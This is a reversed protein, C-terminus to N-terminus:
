GRDVPANGAVVPNFGPRQPVEAPTQHRCLGPSHRRHKPIGPSQWSAAPPAIDPRQRSEGPSLRSKVPILSDDRDAFTLSPIEFSTHTNEQDNGCGTDHQGGSYDRLK